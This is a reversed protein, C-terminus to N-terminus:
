MYNAYKDHNPWSGNVYQLTTKVRRLLGSTSPHLLYLTRTHTPQKKKGKKSDCAHMCMCDRGSSTPLFEPEDTLM